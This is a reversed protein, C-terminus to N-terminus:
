DLRLGVWAADRARPRLFATVVAGYLLALYLPYAFLMPDPTPIAALALLAAGLFVFWTSPTEREPMSWVQRVTGWGAVLSVGITIALAARPEDTVAWLALGLGAAGFIPADRWRFLPGVGRLAALAAVAITGGVQAAVFGATAATADGWASALSVSGLTAWVIWCARHPRSRRLAVDRLYPLFALISLMASAFGLAARPSIPDFPM